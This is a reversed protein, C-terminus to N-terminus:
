RAMAALEHPDIGLEGPRGFSEGSVKLVVRRVPAPM